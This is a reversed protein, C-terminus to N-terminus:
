IDMAMQTGKTPYDGRTAMFVDSSVALLMIDDGVAECLVERYEEINQCTIKAEIVKKDKINVQGLTVVARPWEYATLLSVVGRIVHKATMSFAEVVERQERENMQEWVKPTNRFRSVLADRTDGFLTELSLPNPPLDGYFDPEEDVEGNLAAPDEAGAQMEDNGDDSTIDGPDLPTEESDGGESEEDEEQSPEFPDAEAAEIEQAAATFEERLALPDDGPMPALGDEPAIPSTLVEGTVPDIHDIPAM